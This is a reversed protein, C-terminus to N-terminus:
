QDGRMRYIWVPEAANESAYSVGTLNNNFYRLSKISQPVRPLIPGSRYRFRGTLPIIRFFDM